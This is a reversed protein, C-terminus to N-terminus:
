NLLPLSSTGKRRQASVTRRGTRRDRVKQTQLGNIENCGQEVHTVTTGQKNFGWCLQTCTGKIRPWTKLASHVNILPEYGPHVHYGQLHQM